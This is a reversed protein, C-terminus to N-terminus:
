ASQLTLFFLSTQLLPTSLAQLYAQRRVDLTFQPNTTFLGVNQSSLNLSMVGNLILSSPASVISNSTTTVLSEAGSVISFLPDELLSTQVFGPAFVFLTSLSSTGFTGKVDMDYFPSSVGIGTKQQTPVNATTYLVDNINVMNTQLTTDYEYNYLSDAYTSIYNPKSEQTNWVLSPTALSISNLNTVSSLTSVILSSV